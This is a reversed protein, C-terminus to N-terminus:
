FSAGEMWHSPQRAVGPGSFSLDLSPIASKDQSGLFGPAM